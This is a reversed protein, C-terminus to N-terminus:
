EAAQAQHDARADADLHPQSSRDPQPKTLPLVHQLLAAFMRGPEEVMPLHASHEFWVVRKHPAQLRQLWAAAIPAPVTYDHRGLFLLVPVQLRRLDQFSVDALRPWLTTVSFASGAAWAKRDVPAYEPSLRTADFYFDANDRYAALAGWGISWKRWADAQEITFRTGDPYPKLAQLERLALADGRQRAQQLTWDLGVRENDKFSIAQGVGVYAHLLDPRAQAVALGVASGWSHGMLIVKRKGYRARLLEILEIADDRYRQLTMTPALAQPDNLPYSKGAGRQDWQVVTFYDEWPRQFTWAMPMEVSGPGGHVFLLLPNARDTGRVSIAQRAGGLEVEFADQVGDPTVIRQLAAVVTRGPAYPDAEPTTARPTQAGLAASLMCLPLLVLLNRLRRCPM